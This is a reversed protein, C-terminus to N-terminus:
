MGVFGVRGADRVETNDGGCGQEQVKLSGDEGQHVVSRVFEGVVAGNEVGKVGGM